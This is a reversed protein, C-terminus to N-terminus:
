RTGARLMEVEALLSACHAILESREATLDDVRTQLCEIQLNAALLDALRDAAARAHVRAAASGVASAVEYDEAVATARDARNRESGLQASLSLTQVLWGIDSLSEM